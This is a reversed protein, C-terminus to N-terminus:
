AAARREALWPAGRVTIWRILAALGIGITAIIV